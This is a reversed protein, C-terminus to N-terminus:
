KYKEVIKDIFELCDKMTGTYEIEIGEVYVTITHHKEPVYSNTTITYSPSQTFSPSYQYPDTRFYHSGFTDTIMCGSFKNNEM